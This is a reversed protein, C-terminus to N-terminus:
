TFPNFWQFATLLELIIVDVSHGQKVHELEHAIMKDYGRNQLLSQSVFIYNLFSYPSTEKQLLVMKVGSARQIKNKRLIFALQIIRFIFRGFFFMVGALYIYILLTTSLVVQEVSGSFGHSYVTIAEIMNRYPTVTVEALMIPQPSFVRFKLIPLVVSFIISGLLFWRNIKFFTEKRLFLVYILSLLALSVGSEIIFNVGSNM